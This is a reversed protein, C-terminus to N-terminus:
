RHPVEIVISWHDEGSKLVGRPREEIKLSIHVPYDRYGHTGPRHREKGKKRRTQSTKGCFSLSLRLRPLETSRLTKNASDVDM